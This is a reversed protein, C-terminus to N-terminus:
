TDGDMRAGCYCCYDPSVVFSKNPTNKGCHKCRFYYDCIDDGTKVLEWSSHIVPEVDVTPQKRVTDCAAYMDVAYMPAIELDNIAKDADIYRPM